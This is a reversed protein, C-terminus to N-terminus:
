EGEVGLVLDFFLKNVLASDLEEVSEQWGIMSLVHVFDHQSKRVVSKACEIFLEYIFLYPVVFRAVCNASSLMNTPM